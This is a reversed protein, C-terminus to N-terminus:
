RSWTSQEEIIYEWHGRILRQGQIKDEVWVRKIKPRTLLPTSEKSDKMLSQQQQQAKKDKKSKYALYGIGAGLAAGILLGNNTSRHRDSGTGQSNGMLGGTAAGLTAGAILSDNLSACGPLFSLLTILTILNKM